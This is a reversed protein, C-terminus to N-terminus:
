WNSMDVQGIRPRKSPDQKRKLVALRRRIEAFDYTVAVGDVVVRTAGKALIGELEAIEDAVAMQSHHTALPSRNWKSELAARPKFDL